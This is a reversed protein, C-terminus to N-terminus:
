AFHNKRVIVHDRSQDRGLNFSIHDNLTGM